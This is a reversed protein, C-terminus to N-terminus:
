QKSMHKTRSWLRRLAGYAFRTYIYIYVIWDLRSDPVLGWDMLTNGQLILATNLVHKKLFKM